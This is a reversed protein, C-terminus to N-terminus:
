QGVEVEQAQQILMNVAEPLERLLMRRVIRQVLRVFRRNKGRGRMARRVQKEFTAAIRNHPQRGRRFGDDVDGIAACGPCPPRDGYGPLGCLFPDHSSKGNSFEQQINL